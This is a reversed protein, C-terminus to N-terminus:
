PMATVDALAGFYREKAAEILATKVFHDTRIQSGITSATTGPDNYELAM